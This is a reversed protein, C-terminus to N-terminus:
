SAKTPYPFGQTIWQRLVVAKSLSGTYNAVYTLRMWTEKSLENLAIHHKLAGFNGALFAECKAQRAQLNPLKYNEALLVWELVAEAHEMSLTVKGQLVRDCHDKLHQVQFRDALPAVMKIQAISLSKVYDSSDASYIYRLLLQMADYSIGKMSEELKVDLKQGKTALFLDALLPSKLALVQTHAKLEKGEIVFAADCLQVAVDKAMPHAENLHSTPSDSGDATDPENEQSPEPTLEQHPFCCAKM